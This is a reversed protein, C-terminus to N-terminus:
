TLGITLRDVLILLNDSSTEFTPPDISVSYLIWDKSDSDLGDDANDVHCLRIHDFHQSHFNGM